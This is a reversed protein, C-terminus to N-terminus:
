KFALHLQDSKATEDCASEKRKMQAKNKNALSAAVTTTEAREIASKGSKLAAANRILAMQVDRLM